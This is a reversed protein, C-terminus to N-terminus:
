RLGARSHGIPAGQTYLSVLPPVPSSLHCESSHPMSTLKAKAKRKGGAPTSDTVLFYSQVPHSKWSYKGSTHGTINTISLLRRNVIDLM